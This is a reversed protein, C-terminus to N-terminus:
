YFIEFIFVPGGTMKPKFKGVAPCILFGNTIGFKVVLCQNVVHVELPNSCTFIGM